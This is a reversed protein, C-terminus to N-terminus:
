LGNIQMKGGLFTLGERETTPIKLSCGKTLTHLGTAVHWYSSGLEATDELVKTVINCLQRKGRQFRHSLVPGLM